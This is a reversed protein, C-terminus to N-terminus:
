EFKIEDIINLKSTKLAPSISATLMIGAGVLVYLVFTNVPYHINGINDVGAIMTILIIGGLVGIAGGILGGTASEIFIMRIMQRKSMGMSRFVAFSHKREIFSLMLNNLIGFIGIVSALASFGSMLLMSQQNSKMNESRREEMTAVYPWWRKFEERISQAVEEPAKDTKVYVTSYTDAKMDAKIFRDSALACNQGEYILKKFTGIIKYTKAGSTTELRVYDGVKAKLTEGLTESILLSREEDLKRFAEEPDGDMELNFFDLFKMRDIGMLQSIYEESDQLEVRYFSYEGYVDSVGEINDVLRLFNRDARGIYIEIDYRTNKFRDNISVASDYGATNIMLLSSMGIALMSISSLINRNNKLNRAAIVGINGFIYSYVGTFISIFVDTIYPVLMTVAILSMVMGSAAAAPRLEDAEVFACAFAIGLIFLGLVLRRLKRGEPKQIFNLVIDKVPIRLIRLIPVISGLICLLVAAVLSIGMQAISFDIVANFTIGADSTVMQNMVYAMLSLIGIGLGNGLVGGIFGYLVSEGILMFNAMRGTAGMSRFTGIVPLREATIVKFSSYVIFLSMFFVVSSLMMFVMSIERTQAKLMEYPFTEEVRYNKYEQSLLEIVEQKQEPNKLKVYIADVKGRADVISSLTERPIVGHAQDSSGQFHGTPSAIGCVQFKYRGEGIELAITDGPKIGYKDATISSIILKRGEFPYLGYQKEITYPNMRSLDELAIGKIYFNVEENINPKYNAGAGLEGVIYELKDKHREAGATYFYPSTSRESQGIMIDSDGLYGKIAVSITKM